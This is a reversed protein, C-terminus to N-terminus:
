DSRGASNRWESCENLACDHQYEKQVRDDARRQAVELSECTIRIPIRNAGPTEAARASFSKEDLNVHASHGGRKVYHLRMRLNM